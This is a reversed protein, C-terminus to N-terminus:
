AHPHVIVSKLAAFREPDGFGTAFRKGIKRSLQKDDGSKLSQVSRLDAKSLNVGQHFVSQRKKFPKTNLPLFLKLVAPSAEFLLPADLHIL